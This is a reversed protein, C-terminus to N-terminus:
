RGGLMPNPKAAAAARLERRLEERLPESSVFRLARRDRAVAATAVDRDARLPEAVYEFAGGDRGVAALAIERDGRLAESVGRLAYGNSRVAALLVERDDLLPEALCRLAAEGGGRGADEAQVAALAIERDAKHEEGAFPLATGSLRVVALVFDRDHRLAKTAHQFATGDQRVATLVIERDGRLDESAVALLAGVQRVAPLVVDREGRCGEDMERLTHPSAEVHAITAAWVAPLRVLTVLATCADGPVVESLREQETLLRAGVLLKQQWEPIGSAAAVAGRVSRRTWTREALVTCIERGSLDCVTLELGAM